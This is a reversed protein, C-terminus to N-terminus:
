FVKLHIDRMIDQKWQTNYHRTQAHQLTHTKITRIDTNHLRNIEMNM